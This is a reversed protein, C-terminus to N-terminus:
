SPLDSFANCGTVFQLFDPSQSSAAVAAISNLIIEPLNKRYDPEPLDVGCAHLLGHLGYLRDKMNTTEYDPNLGTLLLNYVFPITRPWSPDVSAKQLWERFIQIHQFRYM